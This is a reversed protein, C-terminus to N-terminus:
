QETALVRRVAAQLEASGSAELQGVFHMLVAEPSGSDNLVRTIIRAACAERSASPEYVYRRGDRTRTLWRKRHLKDMTTMVTTYALPRSRQGNLASVIQRVSVPGDAAWVSEMVETELSGLQWM